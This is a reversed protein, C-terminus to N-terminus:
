RLASTRIVASPGTAAASRGDTGFAIAVGALRASGARRLIKRLRAPVPVAVTRSEGAALLFIASGLTAGGPLARKPARAPATVVRAVGRCRPAAAPCSLRLAFRAPTALRPPSVGVHPPSGGPSPAAPESSPPSAAAATSPAPSSAATITIAGIASAMSGGVDRVTVVPAFTGPRVYTHRGTVAFGGTPDAALAPDASTTGDGWAVTATYDAITAGPDDDSFTAFTAVLPTGAEATAPPAPLAALPADAVTASAAASTPTGDPGTATGTGTGTAAVTVTFPEVGEEGFRHDASVPYTCTLTQTPEGVAGPSTTGDAWTVTAAYSSAPPCALSVMDAFTAVTGSFAAGETPAVSTPTVTVARAPAAAALTLLAAALLIARRRGHAAGVRKDTARPM